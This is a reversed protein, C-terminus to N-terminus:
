NANMRRRTVLLIGAGLVLIAGIVYFITTGIGGTSPLQTGENNVVTIKYKAGDADMTVGASSNTGNSFGGAAVIADSAGTATPDTWDIDITLPDTLLNFGDPAITETLTYEGENLGEFKIIGNKDSTGTLTVGSTNVVDKSYSVKVYTQETSEYQTTNVNGGPVTTTYSGDKLKYYTGTEITEGDQATYGTKEFKEGTVLVHNLATGELKFTAGELVNSGDTKTIELTTVYTKTKREPTTGKPDTTKFNDGDYDHNPDNSYDFKVENENGTAGFKAKENVVASYKITITKGILNNAEVYAKFDNFVIKIAQGGTTTVAAAQTAPVTFAAEGTTATLTYNDAPLATGNIDISTLGFFTLGEPLKDNMHFVFHDEYKATNPVTITVEFDVKDGIASSDAAVKTNSEGLIKKDPNLGTDKAVITTDKIVSLLYKSLTDSTKDTTNNLNSTTDKIFYYGDGTVSATYKTADNADATFDATKTGLNAAIITAVSDIRGASTTATANTSAFTALVTAVDQASTCNKFLSDGVALEKGLADVKKGAMAGTGDKLDDATARLTTDTTEVLAKQLNTGNVGDAWAIDALKEEAADLNGSFVKYAEYTHAVNQDTNTITITHPNTAPAAFATVGMALVMVMALALAMMKKVKRM